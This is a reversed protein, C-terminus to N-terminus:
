TASAVRFFRGFYEVASLLSFLAGLYLLIMGSRLPDIGLTVEYWLLFGIASSQYATKIKGLSSAKIVIGEQSAIGRLGTVALERCLLLAVLWAPVLGIPILMILVTTVMLKDAMPDLFAGVKSEIAWKRALWGDIIDTVMAAVFVVFATALEWHNPDEWLLVVMAPVAAIRALTLINPLNWFSKSKM